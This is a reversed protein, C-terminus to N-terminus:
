FVGEDTLIVIYCILTPLYQIFSVKMCFQDAKGMVTTIHSYKIESGKCYVLEINVHVYFYAM